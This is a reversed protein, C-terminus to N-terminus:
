FQFIENQVTLQCQIDTLTQTMNTLTYQEDIKDQLFKNAAELIGEKNKLLQIEQFMIDMKASRIHYMWIELYKELSHLEDLTMTGAGGGYMYSLGKQLIDIENKLMNIEEKPDQPQKEMADEAVETGKTSKLYREILGQMSGKTALEYLKGHASFIFLGIEADCLVSLEKAKKLLGARRKCFTVQRHVPNEIRKMQVKGRAM